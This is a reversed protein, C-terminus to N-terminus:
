NSKTNKSNNELQKHSNEKRILKNKIFKHKKVLKNLM